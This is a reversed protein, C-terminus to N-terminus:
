YAGFLVWGEFSRVFYLEGISKEKFKYVFGSTDDAVRLNVDAIDKSSLSEVGDKGFLFANLATKGTIQEVISGQVLSFNSSIKEAIRYYNKAKVDRLFADFDPRDGTQTPGGFVIKISTVKNEKEEFSFNNGYYNIYTNPIAKKTKLDESQKRQSPNGLKEIAKRADSGLDVGDLGMNPPNKEGEIQVSIILDPRTNDAEFIVSHGERRYAYAKWGDEFPIIKDPEGFQQKAFKLEQGIKFGYLTYYNGALSEFSWLSLWCLTIASILNKM